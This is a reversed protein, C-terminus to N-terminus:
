IDLDGQRVYDRNLQLISVKKVPLGFHTVVYYQYAMDDFYDGKVADPGDGESSTSSKVEILEYGGKAKRLLDVSCFNNEYAFSAEAIVSVSADILHQTEEIMKTKSRMFPVESFAGFYRRALAGVQTGTEFRLEDVSSEDFREPMNNEMWLIKPCKLGTCYKSKTLNM